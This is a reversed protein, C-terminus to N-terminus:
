LAEEEEGRNARRKRKGRLCDNKVVGGVGDDDDHLEDGRGDDEEGGGGDVGALGLKAEAAVEPSLSVSGDSGAAGGLVRFSEVTSVAFAAAPVVSDFAGAIVCNGGGAGFFGAAGAVNLVYAVHGDERGAEGAAGPVVALAANACLCGIAALRTIFTARSQLTVGIGGGGGILSADGSRLSCLQWTHRIIM